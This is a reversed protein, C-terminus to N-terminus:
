PSRTANRLEARDKTVKGDEDFLICHCFRADDYTGRANAPKFGNDPDETGIFYRNLNNKIFAPRGAQVYAKFAVWDHTGFIPTNMTASQRPNKWASLPVFALVVLVCVLARGSM